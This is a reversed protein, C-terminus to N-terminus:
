PAVGPWNPLLVRMEEGAEHLAATVSIGRRKVELVHFCAVQLALPHGQAFALIAAQEEATFPPADPRQLAVFDAAEGETFLGLRLLPFTNYFPSVPDSADTLESLPRQSATLISLGIQGCARLTLFFDRTFQEPRQALEEFEDLCLVPRRNMQLLEEVAEIFGALDTPPTAWGLRKGAQRLWGSLTFCQPSQLDLYAVQPSAEWTAAVREIQRFLSTKGIRRPGVVQVNQRKQVFLRIRHQEEERDFFAAADTIGSRWVFPNPRAPSAKGLSRRSLIVSRAQGGGLIPTQLPGVTVNATVWKKVGAEVHRHLDELTVCGRGAEDARGTLGDLLFYTFVGHADAHEYCPEWPLCSGLVCVAETDALLGERVKDHVTLASHAAASGSYCADLIVVKHRAQSQLLHKKVGDLNIATEAYQPHRAQPPVLYIAGDFVYGHSSCHFLFLDESRTSYATRHLQALINERLPAQRRALIEGAIGPRFTIGYSQQLRGAVADVAAQVRQDSGDILLAVRQPDFNGHDPHTLLLYIGIADRVCCRLRAHMYEDVYENIGVLIAWADVSRGATPTSM